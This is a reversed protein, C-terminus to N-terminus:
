NKSDCSPYAAACFFYMAVGLCDVNVLNNNYYQNLLQTYNNFANADNTVYNDVVSKPVPWAIM